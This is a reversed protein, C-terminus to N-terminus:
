RIAAMRDAATAYRGVPRGELLRRLRWAEVRCASSCHRADDRRGKLSVGCFACASM